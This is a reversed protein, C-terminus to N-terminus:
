WALLRRISIIPSVPKYSIFSLAFLRLSLASYQRLDALLFPNIM